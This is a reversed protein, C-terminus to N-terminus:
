LVNGNLFRKISYKIDGEPMEGMRHFCNQCLCISGDLRCVSATLMLEGCLDCTQRKQNERVYFSSVHRTQQDNM